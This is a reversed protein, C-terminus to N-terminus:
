DKNKFVGLDVLYEVIEGNGISFEATYERPAVKHVVYSRIDKFGWSSRQSIDYDYEGGNYAITLICSDGEFVSKFSCSGHYDIGETVDTFRETAQRPINLTFSKSTRIRLDYDSANTLSYHVTIDAKQKSCSAMLLIM